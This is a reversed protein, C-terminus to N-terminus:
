VPQEPDGSQRRWIERLTAITDADAPSKDPRYGKIRAFRLALGGPYQPSAQLDNFAVEVVLEPRVWVVHGERSQELELLRTTQWALMEDSMGKFTKGLMVFGGTAGDRAGLHLNSLWGKRRGHGWEAALVVLDLTRVPKVKLWHRGRHGAEYPADLAKAMIGEHGRDLAQRLFASAADASGTILRPVVLDTPVSRDLLAIRERYPRDILSVGDLFLLDFLFLTLPISERVREVELRRGFRRMTTQFPHPSGDPRLAIAEGELILGTAPLALTRGVLEPVAPTVENLRRSYIRVEDGRRHIQVRAGDLKLELGCEGLEAVAEAESEATGALMPQIPQFLRVAFAGLAAAGGTLAARAVAPLEGAMMAARRVDRAPLGAARAVAELVLGELAGQRLEGVLLGGVFRQEPETMRLLLERLLRQREAASGPGNSQAIRGLTADVETLTVATTSAATGPHAAQITAWGVGLKSQLVAGSLYAVAIELEEEPLAALLEALLEIKARRGSTETVARSTEVLRAFTM